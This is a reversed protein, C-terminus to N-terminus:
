SLDDATRLLEALQAEDASPKGEILRVTTPSSGAAEVRRAGLAPHHILRYAAGPVGPAGDKALRRVSEPYAVWAIRLWIPVAGKGCDHLLAAILLDHDEVGMTRLHRTVELAHRQDRPQMSFFIRAEEEQMLVCAEALEDSDISPHLAHWVQRSRYLAQGAGTV